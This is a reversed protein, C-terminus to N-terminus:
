RRVSQAAIFMQETFRMLQAGVWGSTLATVIAVVIMKLVFASAQDQLQTVAQVLAWILGV